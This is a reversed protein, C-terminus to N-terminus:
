QANIENVEQRRNLGRIGEYVQFGVGGGSVDFHGASMYDWDNGM